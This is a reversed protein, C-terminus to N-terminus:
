KNLKRLHEIVYSQESVSALKWSSWQWDGPYPGPVSHRVKLVPIGFMNTVITFEISNHNVM